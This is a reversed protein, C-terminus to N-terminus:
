GTQHSALQWDGAPAEGYILWHLVRDRVDRAVGEVRMARDAVEILQGLLQVDHHFAPDRHYRQVDEHTALAHDYFQKEVTQSRTELDPPM